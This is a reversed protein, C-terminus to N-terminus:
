NITNDENMQRKRRSSQLSAVMAKGQEMRTSLNDDGKSLRTLKSEESSPPLAKIKWQQKAPKVLVFVEKGPIEDDNEDPMM